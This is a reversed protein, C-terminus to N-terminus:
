FKIDEVNIAVKIDIFTDILTQKLDINLTRINYIKREFNSWLNYVQDASLYKKLTELAINEKKLVNNVYSYDVIVISKLLKLYFQQMISEIIFLLENNKIITFETAIDNINKFNSNPLNIIVDLITNYISIADSKNFRLAIGLSGQSLDILTNLSVSDIDNIYERIVKNMLSLELPKMKIIKCRSPITKPINFLSHNIIFICTNEPPEEIIKLLANHGHNNMDDLADIIAVRFGNEVSTKSFFKPLKRVEDVLITNKSKTYDPKLVFLDPHVGSSIRRDIESKTNNNKILITNTLKYVLSSKGIGKRGNLLWTGNLKNNSWKNQFYVEIDDHGRIQSTVRTEIYPIKSSM